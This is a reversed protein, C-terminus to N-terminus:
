LNQRRIIETNLLNCFLKRIALLQSLPYSCFFYLKKQKYIFVARYSLTKARQRQVTTIRDLTLITKPLNMTKIREQVLFLKDPDLNSIYIQEEVALHILKPPSAKKLVLQKKRTRKKPVRPVNKVPTSPLIAQHTREWIILPTPVHRGLMRKEIEESLRREEEESRRM